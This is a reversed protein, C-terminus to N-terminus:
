PCWERNQNDFGAAASVWYSLVVVVVRKKDV